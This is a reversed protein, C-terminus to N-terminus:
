IDLLIDYLFAEITYMLKQLLKATISATETGRGTCFGNLNEHYQIESTLRYNLIGTATKWLVEVLGICRFFVM